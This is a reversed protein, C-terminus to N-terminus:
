SDLFNGESFGRGFFFVLSHCAQRTNTTFSMNQLSQVPEHRM